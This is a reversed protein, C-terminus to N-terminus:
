KCDVYSVVLDSVRPKKQGSADACQLEVICIGPKLALEINWNPTLPIVRAANADNASSVRLHQTEGNPDTEVRGSLRVIGERPAWISLTTPKENVAISPRGEADPKVTRATDVIYARGPELVDIKSPLHEVIPGGFPLPGWMLVVTGPLWPDGPNGAQTWSADIQDVAFAVRRPYFIYSGLNYCRCQREGPHVLVIREVGLQDLRHNLKEWEPLPTRTGAHELMSLGETRSYVAHHSASAFLAVLGPALLILAPRRMGRVLGALGAFEVVLVLPFAWKSLKFLSWTHGISGTFPNVVWFTFWVATAAFVALSMGAVAGCRDRITRRLGFLFLVGLVGAYVLRKPEVQPVFVYPTAGLAFAAFTQPEWAIHGGVVSGSQSRIAHWARGWEVNGFLALGLITWGSFRLFRAALGDRWATRLTMLWFGGAPLALLPAMDSYVSLFTCTALALLAANAPKWFSPRTARSLLALAFCFYATGFMQPQFGHHMSTYLPNIGVAACLVAAASAVRGLRFTWRAVLFIGGLNLLTGWAMIMPHILMADLGSYTQVLAHLFTSGMRLKFMQYGHVDYTGPQFPDDAIVGLGFGNDQLWRSMTVYTITDWTTGACQVQLFLNLNFWTALTAAALYILTAPRPSLFHVGRAGRSSFGRASRSSYMRLFAAGVLALAGLALPIRAERASMGGYSCWGFALIWVGTGTMFQAIGTELRLGRLLCNSTLAGVTWGTAMAVGTVILIVAISLLFIDM